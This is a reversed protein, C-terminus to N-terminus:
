PSSAALVVLVRTRVGQWRRQKGLMTHKEERTAMFECLCEYRICRERYIFVVFVYM